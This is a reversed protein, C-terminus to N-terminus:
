LSRAKNNFFAYARLFSAPLLWSCFHVAKASFGPYCFSKNRALAMLGAKAASDPDDPRFLYSLPSLKMGATKEFGTKLPAPCLATVHVGYPRVEEHVAESFSSVYAKSAYYLNMGPGAFLAAISSVNLIGGRGKEMMDPLFRRSLITLALVNVGLMERIRDPSEKEFVECDGFGANNVLFDIKLNRRRIESVLRDAGEPESLSCAIPIIKVSESEFQKKLKMLRNRNRGTVVLTCPWASLIRVFSTGLGGSAGTILATFGTM